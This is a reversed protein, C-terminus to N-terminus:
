SLDKFLNDKSGAELSAVRASITLMLSFIIKKDLSYLSGFKVLFDIKPQPYKQPNRDSLVLIGCVGCCQVISQLNCGETM